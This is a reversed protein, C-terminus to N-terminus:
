ALLAAIAEAPVPRSFLYGQMEGCGWERLLAAQAETEVGEAVSALGLSTALALIARPIAAAREGSEMAQVFSRDVKLRDVSLAHLRGLSSHGTGFDDVAIGIGMARLQALSAAAADIEGMLESETIEIELEQPAIGSRAVVAAVMACFGPERLQRGAINVAMRLAPLGARRWAVQQRCAQELVWAGIPVILGTEEALAIFQAPPIDGQEPLRWRLLAEVGTIARSHADVQPQYVLRFQQRDLAQRLANALAVREIRRRSFEDHYVQTASGGNRKALDLAIEANRLLTSADEGHGPFYSVGCSVTVAPEDTSRAAPAQLQAHLAASLTELAAAHEGEALVVFEDGGLRAALMRGGCLQRLHRAVDVLVRDGAAHGLMDNIEKFHDVDLALVGFPRGDSRARKVALGLRDLFLARNPLGTVGDTHVLYDIRECAKRAFVLDYFLAVYAVTQGHGDCVASIHLWEEYLEGNRRRNCLEGQWEGSRDLADWMRAYFAADQRGSAILGPTRGIVEYPEYGTVATFGPNVGVIRRARDAVMWADTGGAFLDALLQHEVPSEDRTAAAPRLLCFMSGPAPYDARLAHLLLHEHTGGVARVALRDIRSSLGDLLEQLAMALSRSGPLRVIDALRRGILRELPLGFLKGSQRTAHTIHGFGDAILFGFSGLSRLMDDFGDQLRSAVEREPNGARNGDHVSRLEMIVAALDEAYRAMQEELGDCAPTRAHVECAAQGSDCAQTAVMM